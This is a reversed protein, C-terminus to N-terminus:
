KKTRRPFKVLRKIDEVTKVADAWEHKRPSFHLIIGSGHFEQYGYKESGFMFTEERNWVGDSDVYLIDGTKFNHATEHGSGPLKERIEKQPDQIEIEYIKRTKADIKVAKM